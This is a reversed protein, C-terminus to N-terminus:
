KRGNSAVSQYLQEYRKVSRTLTFQERVKAMNRKGMEVRRADDEALSAIADGLAKPNQPEVLLGNQGEGILEPIGGVRTAIVPLGASMAELISNPLAEQHSPLVHLDAAALLTPVDDRAGLFRVHSGLELERTRKELFGAHGARDSGAVLLVWKTPLRRSVLALANILDAHGKYPHLNAIITIVLADPEINLQKRASERFGPQPEFAAADIGNYLLFLKRQNVGEDRLQELVLKANGVAKRVLRHLLRREVVKYFPYKDQYINLGVRSMVICRRGSILTALSGYFYADPLFCHVVKARRSRIYRAMPLVVAAYSRAQTFSNRLRSAGRAATEWAGSLVLVVGRLATLILLLIMRVVLAGMAAPAHIISGTASNRGSCGRSADIRARAIM